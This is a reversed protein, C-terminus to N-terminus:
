GLARSKRPGHKKRFRSIVWGHATEVSLGPSPNAVPIAGMIAGYDTMGKAVRKEAHAIATDDLPYRPARRIDSLAGGRAAPFLHRVM